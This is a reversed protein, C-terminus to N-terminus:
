CPNTLRKSQVLNGFADVTSTKQSGAPDTVTTSNGNYAYTTTSAGDPATVTLTRGSGDHTYTTWYYADSSGLPFREATHPLGARRLSNWM